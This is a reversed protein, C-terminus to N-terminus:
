PRFFNVPELAVIKWRKGQREVRCKLVARRTDKRGGPANKENVALLWDLELSRRRGDGQDSVVEVTSITESGNLLAEVNTRLEAYEPMGRDFQDLFGTADDNALAQAADAFLSLVGAPTEAFAHLSVTLGALALLRLRM